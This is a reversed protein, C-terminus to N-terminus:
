YNAQAVQLHPRALPLRRRLFLELEHAPLPKSFLYGQILDCGEKRLIDLQESREVGEAVVGMGLNHALNIIASVISRDGANDLMGQIFSKDIKLHTPEFLRLYSLSSYGKGFDDIAIKVGLGRIQKLEQAVAMSNRVLLGETIEIALHEPAIGTEEIVSQILAFVSGLQFQKPSVNVSVVFPDFGRRLWERQQRCAEKLVFSGLSAILASEEAIPIFRDPGIWEGNEDRWRVLAEVSQVSESIMGFKPQYYLELAGDALAKRLKEQLTLREEIFADDEAHYGNVQNGGNRKAIYMAADAHNLLAKLNHSCYPYLSVGISPTIFFERGCVTLPSAFIRLVEHAFLLVEDPQSSQCSVVAFEDGGLRVLAGHAGIQKRVRDAVERLVQDGFDHGESDNLLKFNDLDFYLLSVPMGAGAWVAFQETLYKRTFAGTAEDLYAALELDIVYGIFTAAVEILEVEAATFVTHNRDMGCVTGIASGDKLLIPMGIFSAQGIIQTISMHTTLDCAVTDPITLGRAGQGCVHSCYSEAFPLDGEEVLVESRNFVRIIQNTKTDNVAVFLTNIELSTSLMALMQAAATRLRENVLLGLM